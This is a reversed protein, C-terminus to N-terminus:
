SGFVVASIKNTDSIKIEFKQSFCQFYESSRHYTTDHWFAFLLLAVGQPFSFSMFMVSIVLVFFCVASRSRNAGYQRTDLSEM